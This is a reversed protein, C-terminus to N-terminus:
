PTMDLVNCGRLKVGCGVRDSVENFKRETAAGLDIGLQYALIDLYIQLDALEKAALAKFTHADIDGREYKKRVNAYEGLEGVAAQLWQAPSWDSGDVKAHATEGKANKFLPLRMINATRLADFTLSTAYRM